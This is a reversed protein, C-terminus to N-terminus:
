FQIGLGINLGQIDISGAKTLHYGTYIKMRNIFLALNIEFENISQSEVVAGYYDILIELPKIPYVHMGTSFNFGWHETEGKILKTGVGWWWDFYSFRMRVYNLQLNHLELREIGSHLDEQLLLSKGSLKLFPTAYLDAKITIGEINDFDTFYNSQIDFKFANKSQDNFLGASSDHWPYNNFGSHWFFHHQYQKELPIGIFTHYFLRSFIYGLFNEEDDDNNEDNESDNEADDKIQEEFERLKSTDGDSAVLISFTIMVMLLLIILRFDVM